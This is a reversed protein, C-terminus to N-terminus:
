HSQGLKFATAAVAALVGFLAALLGWLQAVKLSGLLDKISLEAASVAPATSTKQAEACRAKWDSFIQAFETSLLSSQDLTVHQVWWDYGTQLLGELKLGNEVLVLLPRHTAYALAAEIQNWVTPFNIENLVSADPSGRKESGKDVHIREFAIVIAGVCEKMCETVTKLPQDNRFYNRGITRPELGQARLYNEVASVFAEQQPTFTKGISLFIPLSM